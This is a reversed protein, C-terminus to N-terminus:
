SSSAVKASIEFVLGANQRQGPDAMRDVANGDYVVTGLQRDQGAVKLKCVFTKSSAKDLDCVFGEAFLANVCEVAFCDRVKARCDGRVNDIISRIEDTFEHRQSSDFGIRVTKKDGSRGVVCVGGLVTKLVVFERTLDPYLLRAEVQYNSPMPAMLGVRGVGSLMAQQLDLAFENRLRGAIFVDDKALLNELRTQSLTELKKLKWEVGVKKSGHQLVITRPNRDNPSPPLYAVADVPKCEGELLLVKKAKPPDRVLDCLPTMVAFVSGKAGSFISGSPAKAGTKLAVVDGFRVPYGAPSDLARRNEHMYLTKKVLGLNDKGDTMTNPPHDESDMSDLKKAAAITPKDSEVEHLLLRDVLDLMYSGRLEKEDDLLLDHIQALDELDMRRIDISTSEISKAIGERWTELFSSLKLSDERHRALEFLLQDMRGEKDIESKKIARFGSAFVHAEDRFKARKSALKPHSSMLIIAPPTKRRSQLASRLGKISHEMDGSAHQTGLYLDILILDADAAADVFERGATSVKLGFSKLSAQAKTLVSQVARQSTDYTSFIHAVADDSLQGRLEWVVNLFVQDKSYDLGANPDYKDYSAELLEEDEPTLDDFFTSWDANTAGLDDLRPALDFGDDVILANQIKNKKLLEATTM